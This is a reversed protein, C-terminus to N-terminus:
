KDSDQKQRKKPTTYSTNTTANLLGDLLEHTM